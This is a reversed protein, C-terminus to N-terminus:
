MKGYQQLTSKSMSTQNLKKVIFQEEANLNHDNELHEIQMKEVEM